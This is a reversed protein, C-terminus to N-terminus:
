GRLFLSAHAYKKVYIGEACIDEPLVQVGSICAEMDENYGKEYGMTRETELMDAYRPRGGQYGLDWGVPEPWNRSSQPWIQQANSWITTPWQVEEACPEKEPELWINQNGYENNETSNPYSDPSVDAAESWLQYIREPKSESSESNLLRIREAITMKKPKTPVPEPDPPPDKVPDSQDQQGKVPSSWDKEPKCSPSNM